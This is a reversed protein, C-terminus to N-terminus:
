CLGSDAIASSPAYVRPQGQNMKVALSGSGDVTATECTLVDTVEEADYGSSITVTSGAGNVGANTLVSVIDGKRLALVGNDSSIVTNAATPDGVVSRVKNLKSLHQYLPAETNFGSLWTAERNAPDEAGAYQHEQGAYIIPIGDALITFALVNKALSLDGTYSAFRPIDHGESFSGLLGM